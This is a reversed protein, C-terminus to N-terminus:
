KEDRCVIEDVAAPLSQCACIVTSKKSNNRFKVMHLRAVYALWQELGVSNISLILTITELHRALRKWIEHRKVHPRSIILRQLIIHNSEM